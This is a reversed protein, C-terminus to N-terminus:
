GQPAAAACVAYVTYSVPNSNADLLPLSVGPLIGAVTGTIAGSNLSSGTIGTLVNIGLLSTVSTLLNVTTDVLTGVVSTDLLGFSGQWGIPLGTIQDLVPVSSLPLVNAINPVNVGGGVLTQGADCTASILQGTVPAAQTVTKVVTNAIQGVPGTPGLPGTPGTLGTLGIPGTPGLLGQLGQPGIPGTPGLLGQLGQPGIPGTPGLLGQLGQPGIPGTPGLLGQLGQPGIPGTPGLLGQLGQPGIPGTPGLLGQLGIPGTPGLLGQIGQPGTPGIAGTLGISGQPGTPGTAGTAGTPGTPGVTGASGAVGTTAYVINLDAANGAAKSEKSELKVNLTDTATIVFAIQTDHNQEIATKLADTVDFEVWQNLSSTNIGSIESIADGLNLNTAGNITTEQISKLATQDLNVTKVQLKGVSKKQIGSVFVKLTAKAVMAPNPTSKELDFKLFGNSKGAVVLLANKKGFNKTLGKQIDVYSDVLLTTDGFAIPSVAMATLSGIVALSKAGLRDKRQQIKNKKMFILFTDSTLSFINLFVFM